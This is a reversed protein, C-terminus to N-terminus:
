LPHHFHHALRVIVFVVAVAILFAAFGSQWWQRPQGTGRRRGGGRATYARSAYWGLVGGLVGCLAVLEYAASTM